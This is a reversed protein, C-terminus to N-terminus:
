EEERKKGQLYKRGEKLGFLSELIRKKGREFILFHVRRGHCPFSPILKKRDPFPSPPSKGSTSFGLNRCSFASFFLFLPFSPRIEEEGKQRILVSM